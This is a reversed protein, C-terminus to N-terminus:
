KKMAKDLISKIEDIEKQASQSPVGRQNIASKINSVTANFWSITQQDVVAGYELFVQLLEKYRKLRSLIDGFERRYAFTTLLTTPVSSYQVWTFGVDAGNEILEKVKNELEKKTSINGMNYQDMVSKLSYSLRNYKKAIPLDFKDAIDDKPIDPFKEALIGVLVTFGALNDMNIMQKLAKNTSSAIKIKEIASDIDDGSQAFALIILNKVDNPLNQFTSLEPQPNRPQEMGYMQGACVLACLLFVKKM